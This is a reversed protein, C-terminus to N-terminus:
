PSTLEQRQVMGIFVPANDLAAVLSLGMRLLAPRLRDLQESALMLGPGRVRYVRYSWVHCRREVNV